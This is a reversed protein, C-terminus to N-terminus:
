GRGRREREERGPEHCYCYSYCDGEVFAGRRWVEEYVHRAGQRPLLVQLEPLHDHQLVVCSRTLLKLRMLLRWLGSMLGRGVVGFFFGLFSLVLEGVRILFGRLGRRCGSVM